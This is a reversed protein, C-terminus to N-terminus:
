PLANIIFYDFQAPKPVSNVAQGALLGVFLPEMESNHAGILKLELGDESVYATFTNGERRLRLYVTDTEPAPTAFNESNFNGNDTMDIYFGDGACQAFGCFARGFQIFNAASEYILLGAFQFNESPKFNVKTELEFNGEPAQRLLLNDIDGNGVHGARAMIELWGLNNTLSWYNPNEEVWQWGEGLSGEFDDRFLLPDSTPSPELTATPPVPTETPLPIPTDTPALTSTPVPQPTALTGCASLVLVSLVFAFSTNKVASEGM